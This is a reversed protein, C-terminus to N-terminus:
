TENIMKQTVNYDFSLYRLITDSGVPYGIPIRSIHIEVVDYLEVVMLISVM